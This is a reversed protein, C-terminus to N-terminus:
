RGITKQRCETATASCFRAFVSDSERLVMSIGGRCEAEKFGALRLRDMLASTEIEDAMYSGEFLADRMAETADVIEGMAEFSGGRMINGSDDITATAEQGDSLTVTMEIRTIRPM